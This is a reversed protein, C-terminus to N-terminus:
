SQRRNSHTPTFQHHSQHKLIAGAPENSRSFDNGNEILENNM